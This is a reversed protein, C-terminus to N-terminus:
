LDKEAQPIDMVPQERNGGSWGPRPLAAIVIEREFSYGCFRRGALQVQRFRKTFKALLYLVMEIKQGFESLAKSLNLLHIHWFFIM